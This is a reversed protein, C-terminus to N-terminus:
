VLTARHLRLHPRSRAAADVKQTAGKAMKASFLQQQLADQYPDGQMARSWGTMGADTVAPAHM